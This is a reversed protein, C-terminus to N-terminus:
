PTRWALLRAAATLSRTPGPSSSSRTCRCRALITACCPHRQDGPGERGAHPLPDLGIARLRVELIRNADDNETEACPRSCPNAATIFSGTTHDLRVLLADVAPAREGIRAALSGGEVDVVYASARYARLLADSPM